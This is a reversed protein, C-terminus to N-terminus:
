HAIGVPLLGASASLLKPDSKIERRQITKTNRYVYPNGSESGPTPMLTEM